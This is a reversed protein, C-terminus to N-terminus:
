RKGLQRLEEIGSEVKQVAEIYAEILELPEDLFLPFSLATDNYIKAGELSNQSPHAGDNFAYPLGTEKTNFIPSTHLPPHYAGPYVEAGEARLARSFLHADIKAVSPNFKACYGQWAGPFVGERIPMPQVFRCTKLGEALRKFREHRRAIRDELQNFRAQSMAAAIPHMRLNHGYGTHMFQRYFPTSVTQTSRGFHGVLTVRDRIEEDDTVLAGGQGGSLLKTSGLSFCAIRGFTGARRNHLTSGIALSVDEVIPLNHAEAVPLLRDMDVPHGWLHTVVIVKTRPTIKRQVDQPDVNGTDQEADAFVPTVGLQLLPTVTALFTQTPVIAEDGPQLGLGFYASFLASTGSNTSICYDRDFYARLQEEYQGIIGERSFCSILNDSSAIYKAIVERDGPEFAVRRAHPWPASIVADGGLIALM